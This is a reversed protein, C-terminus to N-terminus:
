IDKNLDSRDWVTDQCYLHSFRLRGLHCLSPQWLAARWSEVLVGRHRETSVLERPLCLATCKMRGVM